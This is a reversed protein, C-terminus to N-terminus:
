QVDALPENAVDTLVNIQYLVYSRPLVNNQEKIAVTGEEEVESANM